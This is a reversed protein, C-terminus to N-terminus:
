LGALASGMVASPGAFPGTVSQAPKQFPHVRFQLVDSKITRVTGVRKHRRAPRCTARQPSAVPPYPVSDLSKAAAHTDHGPKPHETQVAQRPVQVLWTRRAAPHPYPDKAPRVAPTGARHVKLSPARPVNRHNKANLQRCHQRKLLARLLENPLPRRASKRSGSRARRARIQAWAAM